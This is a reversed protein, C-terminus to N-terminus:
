MGGQVEAEEEPFHPYYHGGYLAATLILHASVPQFNLATVHFDAM